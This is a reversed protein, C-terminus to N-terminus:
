FTIIAKTDMMVIRTQIFKPSDSNNKKIKKEKEKPFPYWYLEIPKEESLSSEKIEKMFIRMTLHPNEPDYWMVLETDEAIPPHDAQPMFYKTRGDVFKGVILLGRGAPITSLNYIGFPNRKCMKLLKKISISLFGNPVTTPAEIISNKNMNKIKNKTQNSHPVKGRRWTYALEIESSLVVKACNQWEM